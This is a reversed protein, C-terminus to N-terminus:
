VRAIRRPTDLEVDTLGARKSTPPRSIFKLMIDVDLVLPLDFHWAQFLFGSIDYCGYNLVVGKLSFNPRSELLHFCTCAGLYGGASEGGLFLLPAGFEKEANDILYEGVDFCDENSAPYPDELSLRYGISM